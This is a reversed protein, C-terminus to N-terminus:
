GQRSQQVRSRPVPVVRTGRVAVVDIATTAGDGAAVTTFGNSETLVGIDQTGYHMAAPAGITLAFTVAALAVASFGLLARPTGPEYRKM